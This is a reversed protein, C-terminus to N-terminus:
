NMRPDLPFKSMLEYVGGQSQMLDKWIEDRSTDMIYASKPAPVVLWSKEELEDSLQGATWGSYGLFFRLHELIETNVQLMNLVLEFDGGLYINDVINQGGIQENDLTHIFYLHEPKVPGGISIKMPIDPFKPNIDMFSLDTYNNLVFGFSGEPGHECLLVVSRTFYDDVLFPESLLLRGREPKHKNKITIDLESM